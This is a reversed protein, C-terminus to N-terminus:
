VNRGNKYIFKMTPFRLSSGGQKNKTKEFYQVCITKGVIKDPNNIFYEREEISFGSGVSVESDDELHIIVNTMMEKRKEIGNEVYPFPGTEIRDVIFEEDFFSKSKLINKSRKGEYGINAKRLIIGEWGNEDVEKNMKIFNEPTYKFQNLIEAYKLGHLSQRNLREYLKTNGKKDDFEKLTLIDFVLLKPKEITHNKKQIEKMVNQFDEKGNCDLICIEGDLIFNDNQYNSLEDKIKQLTNFEKGSRSFTTVKGNEKRVVCRVGDLKRSMFWTSDLEQGTYKECLAVKFQPILGPYVKNILSVGFRIDLKKDIISLILDKYEINKNIFGNIIGIAENGTIVRNRMEDLIEFINDYLNVNSVLEPHKLINKSTVYYQFYPNNGYVLYKKIEPRKSLIDKKINSSTTSRMDRVFSDLNELSM